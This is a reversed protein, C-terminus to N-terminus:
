RRVYTYSAGHICVMSVPSEPIGLQAHVLDARVMSQSCGTDVIAPIITDGMRIEVPKNQQGPGKHQGFSSDM